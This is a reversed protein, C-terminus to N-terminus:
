SLLLRATSSVALNLDLGVWSDSCIGERYEFCHLHAVDSGIIVCGSIRNCAEAKQAGEAQHGKRVDQLVEVNELRGGRDAQRLDAGHEDGRPEGGGSDNVQYSSCNESFQAPALNKRSDM